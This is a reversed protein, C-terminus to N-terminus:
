SNIKIVIIKALEFLVSGSSPSQVSVHLLQKLTCKLIRKFCSKQADTPLCVKSLVLRCPLVTIIVPIEKQWIKFQKWPDACDQPIRSLTKTVFLSFNPVELVTGGGREFQKYRRWRALLSWARQRLCYTCNRTEQAANWLCFALLFAHPLPKHKSMTILRQKWSLTQRCTLKDFVHSVCHLNNLTKNGTCRAINRASFWSSAGNKISKNIRNQREQLHCM